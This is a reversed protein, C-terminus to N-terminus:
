LICVLSVILVARRRCSASCQLYQCIKNADANQLKRLNSAPIFSKFTFCLIFVDAEESTAIVEEYGPRDAHATHLIFVTDAEEYTSSLEEVVEAAEESIQVCEDECAMFLTKYTLKTRYKDRRWENSM